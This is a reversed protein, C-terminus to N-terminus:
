SIGYKSVLTENVIFNLERIQFNHTKFIRTGSYRCFKTLRNTVIETPICLVAYVLAQFAGALYKFLDM